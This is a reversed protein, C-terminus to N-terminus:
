RRHLRFEIGGSLRMQGRWITMNMDQTFEYSRYGQLQGNQQALLAAPDPSSQAFLPALILFGLTFRV